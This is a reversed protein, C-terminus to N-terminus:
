GATKEARAKSARQFTVFFGLIGAGGGISATPIGLGFVERLLVVPIAVVFQAILFIVVVHWIPLPHWFKWQPVEAAVRDGAENEM